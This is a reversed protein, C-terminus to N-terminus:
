AGCCKKYKKGSGCPCADNRNIKAESTVAKPKNLLGTLDIINEPKDADITINAFLQQEAVMAAVEHQRAETQVSLILPLAETGLKAARKTNYGSEGYAPKPTRRGKFFYKDSM